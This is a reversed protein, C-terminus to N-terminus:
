DFENQWNRNACSWGPSDKYPRGSTELDRIGLVYYSGRSPDCSDNGPSYRYYAYGWGCPDSPKSVPDIPVQQTVGSDILPKIFPDGTMYGSDWGACDNDTNPPYQNYTNYYVELAKVIQSIEALRRADRAKATVGKFSVLTISAM